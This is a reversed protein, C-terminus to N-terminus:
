DERAIRVQSRRRRIEALDNAVIPLVVSRAADLEAEPQHESAQRYLDEARRFDFALPAGERKRDPNPRSSMPATRSPNPNTSFHPSTTKGAEPQVDFIPESPLNMCSPHSANSNTSPVVTFSSRLAAEAQAQYRLFLSWTMATKAMRHFGEGLAYNRNQARTIEINATLEPTM